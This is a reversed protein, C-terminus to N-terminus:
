PAVGRSGPESGGEGDIVFLTELRTIHLLKSFMPTPRRVLFRGGSEEAARHAHVLTNLGSSDIFSMGGVDVVVSGARQLASRLEGGLEAATALDVEGVVTVVATGDTLETSVSLEGPRM